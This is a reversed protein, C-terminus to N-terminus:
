NVDYCKSILLIAKDMNHFQEGPLAFAKMVIKFEKMSSLASDRIICPDVLRQITLVSINDYANLVYNLDDIMGISMEENPIAKRGRLSTKLRAFARLFEPTRTHSVSDITTRRIESDVSSRVQVFAFAVGSIVALNALLSTGREIANFLRGRKSSISGSDSM